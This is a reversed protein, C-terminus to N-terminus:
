KKLEHPLVKNKYITTGQLMILDKLPGKNSEVKNGTNGPSSAESQQNQIWFTKLNPVRSSQPVLVRKSYKPHNPRSEPTSFVISNTNIHWLKKIDQGKSIRLGTVSSIKPENIPNQEPSEHSLYPKLPEIKINKAIRHRSDKTLMPKVGLINATQTFMKPSSIEKKDLPSHNHNARSNDNDCKDTYITKRLTNLNDKTSSDSTDEISEVTPNTVQEIFEKKTNISVSGSRFKEDRKKTIRPLILTSRALKIWSEKLNTSTEEEGNQKEEITEATIKKQSHPPSNFNIKSYDISKRTLNDSGAVRKPRKIQNEPNILLDKKVKIFSSSSKHTPSLSESLEKKSEITMKTPSPRRTQSNVKSIIKPSALSGLKKAAPVSAVKGLQM